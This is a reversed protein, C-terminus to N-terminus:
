QGPAFFSTGRSEGNHICMFEGKGGFDASERILLYIMFVYLCIGKKKKQFGYSIATSGRVDNEGKAFWGFCM